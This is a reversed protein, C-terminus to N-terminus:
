SNGPSATAEGVVDACQPGCKVVKGAFEHGDRGGAEIVVTEGVDPEDLDVDFSVFLFNKTSCALDDGAIPWDEEDFDDGVMVVARDVVGDIQDLVKAVPGIDSLARFQRFPCLQTVSALTSGAM